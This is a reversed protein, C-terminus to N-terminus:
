CTPPSPCCTPSVARLPRSDSFLGSGGLWPGVQHNPRGDRGFVSGRGCHRRVGLGGVVTAFTFPVVSSSSADSGCSACSDRRAPRAPRAPRPPPAPPSPRPAPLATASTTVDTGKFAAEFRSRRSRGRRGRHGLPEHRGGPGPLVRCGRRGRPPGAPKGGHEERPGHGITRGHGPFQDRHSTSGGSAPAAVTRAGRPTGLGTTQDYGAGAQSYYDGGTVDHFAASYTTSYGSTGPNAYLGYLMPLTQSSGDLTAKGALARGEDAVAILAAWQAAGASTGGVVQWGSDSQYPVSDYVSFGTTPDANFSVDPASRNSALAFGSRSFGLSQTDAARLGAQYAPMPELRSNGGPQGVLGVRKRLHRDLGPSEAFDWRGVSRQALSGAVRRRLLPGPRRLCCRLDRRPPRRADTFTGDYATERLFENTGWSM